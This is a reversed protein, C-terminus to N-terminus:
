ILRLVAKGDGVASTSLRRDLRALAGANAAALALLYSDTVQKSALLKRAYVHDADMLSIDDAWFVHGPLARLKRLIEAVIAPSGPTNPYRPHGVIRM